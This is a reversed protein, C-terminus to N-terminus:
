CNKCKNKISADIQLHIASLTSDFIQKEIGRSSETGFKPYDASNIMSYEKFKEKNTTFVEMFAGVFALLPRLAEDQRDKNLKEWDSWHVFWLDLNATFYNAYQNSKQYTPSVLWVFPLKEREDLEFRNWEEKTNSLTGNLFLPIKLTVISDATFEQSPSGIEFNIYGDNKGIVQVPVGNNYVFGFLDVWKNCKFKVPQVDNANVPLFDVITLVNDINPLLDNAIVDSVLEM